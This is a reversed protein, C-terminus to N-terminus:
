RDTGTTKAKKRKQRRSLREDPEWPQVTDWRGSGEWLGDTDEPLWQSADFNLPLRRNVRDWVGNERLEPYNMLFKRFDLMGLEDRPMADIEQQDRWTKSAWGICSLAWFDVDTHFQRKVEQGNFVAEEVYGMFDHVAVLDEPGYWDTWRDHYLHMRRVPSNEGNGQTSTVGRPVFVLTPHLFNAAPGHAQMGIANADFQNVKGYRYGWIVRDKQAFDLMAVDHPVDEMYSMRKSEADLLIVDVFSMCSMQYPGSAENMRRMLQRWVTPWEAQMQELSEAVPPNHPSSWKYEVSQGNWVPANEFRAKFMNYMAKASYRYGHIFGGASGFKFKDLGHANAGLFFLGEASTSEFHHDISPYKNSAKEHMEIPISPDFIGRDMNWGFCRVIGDFPRRFRASIATIGKTSLLLAPLLARFEASTESLEIVHQLRGSLVTVNEAQDWLTTPALSEDASGIVAYSQALNKYQRKLAKPAPRVSIVDGFDQLLKVMAPNNPDNKGLTVWNDGNSWAYNDDTLDTKRHKFEDTNVDSRSLEPFDLEFMCVPSKDRFGGDHDAIVELGDLERYRRQHKTIWPQEPAGNEGCKLIVVREPFAWSWTEDLSKLNVSEMSHTRHVRVHGVYHTRGALHPESQRGFISIEAAENRIADATEFAANGNGLILIRKDTFEKSNWPALDEYGVAFENLRQYSDTPQHPVGLGHAMVVVGCSFRLQKPAGDRTDVIDLVYRASTDVGEPVPAVRTVEHQLLIKGGKVQREAFDQLYSSVDDAHPWYDDSRTQFTPVHSGGDLLSNWDHRMAFDSSASGEGARTHKKNISILGRHVPLRAFFSGAQSAKDVIVYDLSDEFLFEGLQVGAPGAGVVCYKHEADPTSWPGTSTPRRRPESGSPSSPGAAASGAGSKAKSGKKRANLFRNSDGVPLILLLLLLICRTAM